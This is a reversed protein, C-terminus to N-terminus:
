LQMRIGGDKEGSSRCMGAGAVSADGRQGGLRIWPLFEGAECLRSKGCDARRDDGPYFCLSRQGRKTGAFAAPAPVSRRRDASLGDKGPRCPSHDAPFEGLDGGRARQEVSIRCGAAHWSTCGCYSSFAYACGKRGKNEGNVVIRVDPAGLGCPIGSCGADTSKM